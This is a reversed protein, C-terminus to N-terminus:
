DIYLPVQSNRDVCYKWSINRRAYWPGTRVLVFVKLKANGFYIFVKYDSIEKDKCDQEYM